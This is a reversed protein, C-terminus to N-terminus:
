SQDHRRNRKAATLNEAARLRGRATLRPHSRPPLCFQRTSFETKGVPVTVSAVACLALSYPKGHVAQSDDGQCVYQTLPEGILQVEVMGCWM